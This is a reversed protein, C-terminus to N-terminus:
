DSGPRLVAAASGFLLVTLVTGAVAAGVEHFALPSDVVVIDVPSALAVEVVALLPLVVLPCNEGDDLAELDGEM